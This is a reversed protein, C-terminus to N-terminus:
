GNQSPVLTRLRSELEDLGVRVELGIMMAWLAYSGIRPVGIKVLDKHTCVLAAVRPLDDAWAHLSDLESTDYIHHDPFERFAVVDLACTELTHLFGAPNGIGCFAAVPEGALAGIDARLGDSSVLAVPAHTLELWIAQPAIGQVRHRIAERQQADVADSRSLAVIDARALSSLPERLTGRPFVHDFGFPELADILVIDLDRDIRRHQFGDDLVIIQSDHEKIASEAASVRDRDQVHPVGPLKEALEMAEDNPRGSRAKYGRSVISVRVGRSQMWQTLWHVLPTKGTGGMTVNGVSIVPVAVRHTKSIGRDYCANRGTVALTYPFEGLALLGRSLSALPGRKRGSVTNRFSAADFLGKVRRM